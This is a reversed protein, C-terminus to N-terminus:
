IPLLKLIDLITKYYPNCDIKEGKPEASTYIVKNLKRRLIYFILADIGEGGAFIYQENPVKVTGLILGLLTFVVGIIHATVHLGVLSLIKYMFVWIAIGALTYVLGKITLKFFRNEGSFKRPIEYTGRQRLVTFGGKQFCNM